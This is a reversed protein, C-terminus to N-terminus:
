RKNVSALCLRCSAASLVWRLLSLHRVGPLGRLWAIQATIVNLSRCAAVEIRLSLILSLVISRVMLSEAVLLLLTRFCLTACWVVPVLCTLILFVLYFFKKLKAHQFM